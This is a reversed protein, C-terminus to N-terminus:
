FNRVNKRTGNEEITGNKINEEVNVFITAYITSFSDKYFSALPFNSFYWPSSQSNKYTKLFNWFQMSDVYSSVCFINSIYTGDEVIRPMTNAILYDRIKDKPSLKTAVGIFCVFQFISERQTYGDM